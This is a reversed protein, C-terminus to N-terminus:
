RTHRRRGRRTEEGFAQIPEGLANKVREDECCRQAAKTYVSNPSKSSFLESLVAYLMVGTVGLGVVIVGLYSVTKTAEKVTEKVSTSVETQSRSSSVLIDDKKESYHRCHLSRIAFPKSPIVPRYYCCNRLNVTILKNM